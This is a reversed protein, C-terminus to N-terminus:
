HVTVAAAAKALQKGSSALGLRFLRACGIAGIGALAAAIIAAHHMGNVYDAPSGGGLASAAPVVAGFVAVGVVVGGQRFADNTGAALGSQQEPTEAGTQEVRGHDRDGEAGHGRLVATEGGARVVREALASDGDAHGQEPGDHRGGRREASARGGVVDAAHVVGRDDGGSDGADAGDGARPEEM